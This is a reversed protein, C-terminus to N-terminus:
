HGPNRVFTVVSVSPAANTSCAGKLDGLSLEAQYLQNIVEVYDKDEAMMRATRGGENEARVDAGAALLVDVVGAQGYGAALMLPRTGYGIQTEIDAGAAILASVIEPFGQDLDHNYLAKMLATWGRPDTAHINAGSEILANVMDLRGMGAALMLVTVGDDNCSNRDAGSQLLARVHNLDGALVADFLETSM